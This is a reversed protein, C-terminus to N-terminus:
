FPYADFTKHVYKKAVVYTHNISFIPAAPSLKSFSRGRRIATPTLLHCLPDLHLVKGLMCVGESAEGPWPLAIYPQCPMAHNPLTHKHRIALTENKLGNGWFTLLIYPDFNEQM